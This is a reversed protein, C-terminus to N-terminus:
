RKDKLLKLFDSLWTDQSGLEIDLDDDFSPDIISGMPSQFLGSYVIEPKKYKEM